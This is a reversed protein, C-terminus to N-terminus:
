GASRARKVAVAVVAVAVVVTAGLWVVPLADVWPSWAGLAQLQSGLGGGPPGWYFQLNQVTAFWQLGLGGALVLVPSWPAHRGLLVTSGVGVAVAVGVLGGFLYRGQIGPTLGTALYREMAGGGILLALLGLPALVVLLDSRRLPPRRVLLALLVLTVSVVVATAVVALPFRVDSWGFHGWFRFSMRSGFLQLWGVPDPEFNESAPGLRLGGTRMEGFVLQNRVWWAFGVATMIGAVSARALIARWAGRARWWVVAYVLVLWPLLVLALAKTLLASAAVLGVALSTAWSRDDRLLRAVLYTLVGFLGILLGDNNVVSGIHALQPMAVPLFAAAASADASAGLRRATAWALLPLPAVFLVSLLRLVGVTQDFADALGVARWMRLWASALAYYLPPHQSAQNYQESPESGGAEAISPRDHRSPADAAVLNRSKDFFDMLNKTVLVGRGINRVDPPPYREGEALAHVLDVHHTEDPGRYSPFVQAGLVLLLVFLAQAGWVVGPVARLRARARSM